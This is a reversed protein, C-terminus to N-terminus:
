HNLLFEASNLLAWYIDSIGQATEGRRELYRVMREAEEPRPRRSLVMLYLTEIRRATSTPQAALVQLSANVEPRVRESLFKGNMLFLAQLISVQPEDRPDQAPFKALFEARPTRPPGGFQALRPDVVGANPERFDTAEAVNAFIQEPTLARIARRAFLQYDEPGGKGASSRQYAESHVLARLLFKMDFRHTLLQQALDDLLEPHAIRGDAGPEQIPDLLSTGMLYTWLHDAMARAFFGNDGAVVWDALVRRSDSAPEWKPEQGNLFKAKVVKNLNPIEIERGATLRPKASLLMRAIPQQGSYFAALEWFQERTWSAFPHAHCQACDLKVGLFVRATATALNEPKNESAIYFAAPSAGQPMGNPMMAAGTPATLLERTLSDLGASKQIREHLWAEFSPALFRAEQNAVTGLILMRWLAAQHRAFSEGALLQETWQWRKDPDPNELYDRVDLLSPIKGALDLHMRRFVVSDDARPAPIVGAEACRRALYADIRRSLALVEEREQGVASQAMSFMAVLTTLLRRQM